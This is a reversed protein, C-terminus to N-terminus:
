IGYIQFTLDSLNYRGRKKIQKKLVGINKAELIITGYKTAEDSLYNVKIKM